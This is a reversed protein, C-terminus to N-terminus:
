LSYYWDGSSASQAVSDFDNMEGELIFGCLIADVPGASVTEQKQYPNLEISNFEVLMKNRVSQALRSASMPIVEGEFM